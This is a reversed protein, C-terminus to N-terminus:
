PKRVLDDTKQPAPADMSNEAVVFLAKEARLADACALRLPDVPRQELPERLPGLPELQTDAPLLQKEDVRGWPLRLPRIYVRVVRWQRPEALGFRVEHEVAVSVM